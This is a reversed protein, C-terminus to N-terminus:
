TVLDLKESARWGRLETAGVSLGVDCSDYLLPSGNLIILREQMDITMAVAPRM